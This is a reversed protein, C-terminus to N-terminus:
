KNKLDVYMGLTKDANPTSAETITVTMQKALKIKGSRAAISWYPQAGIAIASTM